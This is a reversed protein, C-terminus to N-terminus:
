IANIEIFVGSDYRYSWARLGAGIMKLSGRDESSGLAASRNGPNLSSQGASCRSREQDLEEGVLNGIWGTISLSLRQDTGRGDCRIALSIRRM